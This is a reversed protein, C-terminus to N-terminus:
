MPFPDMKLGERREYWRASSWPWDAPRGILGRRAPNNHIYQVKEYLERESVINRDYGGGDQWFHAAGRADRVRDLIAADLARWRALVLVAFPRKTARLLDTVRVAPLGPTVLLHIHEPMIVWAHLRFDWRSRVRTLHEAFADKIRDNGFLPLRSYCSCTLYRGQGPEEYRKLTRRIRPMHYLTGWEPPHTLLIGPTCKSVGVGDSHPAV